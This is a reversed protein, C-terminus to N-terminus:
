WNRTWTVREVNDAILKGCSLGEDNDFEYHIGGYLRSVAAEEAAENFSQFSRVGFGYPLKTSDTFAFHNGFRISLLRSASASFTSHGSTYSPFPPTAILPLWNPDIYNRIYTVPRMLNHKFKARWCVVGADNLAIGVKALLMATQGLTLNKNRAIQVAISIIHGPPSFTGGGDAWYSAISRQETTLNNFTEYM